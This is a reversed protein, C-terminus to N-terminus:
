SQRALVTRLLDAPIAGLGLLALFYVLEGLGASAMWHVGLRGLLAVALLAVGAALITKLAVPAWRFRGGFRVVLLGAIALITSEALLTGLAAGNQAFRPILLFYAPVGIAVGAADALLMMKQKELATLAFRLIMSLFVAAMGLSLIRLAGAGPVFEPGAVLVVIPEAFVFLGLVVGGAVVAMADFSRSLYSLFRELDSPAHASFLPMVLGGFLFPFTTVIEFIKAGVGYYGVDAPSRLVSLIITDGRLVILSLIGSIALPFGSIAIQRWTRWDFRLHFPILRRALLWSLAFTTMHGAVMAGVMLLLGGETTAIVVVLALMVAAGLVEAVVARGQKLGHQFVGVLLENGQYAAYGAVGLLIGRRVGADFPLLLSLASGGLLVLSTAVLRLTMANGLIRSPDAGERSIERLVIMYLGLDAWVSALSLYTLVTRYRGFGSAGLERTLIGLTILGLLVVAAKGVVIALMNRAIARGHSM